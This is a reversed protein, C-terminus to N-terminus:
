YTSMKEFDSWIKSKLTQSFLFPMKRAIRVKLKWHTANIPKETFFHCGVGDTVLHKGFKKAIFQLTQLRFFGIHQGHDLGYYWWQDPSPAPTAILNTSIILNPAIAFLKEAELLPDVFHEFAEFATVLEAKENAYEFGVALLNQCFPDSWLAEVGRDRLLRVLIGYGGACDVVTTNMKKTVSLTALILGVNSQNRAMIGTDCNNIASSYAKELWYPLETQVYGCASCEFYNITNKFILANFIPKGVDGSCVRCFQNL